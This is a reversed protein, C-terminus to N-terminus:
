SSTSDPSMRETFWPRAATAVRRDHNTAAISPATSNVQSAISTRMM